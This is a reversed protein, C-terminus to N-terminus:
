DPFKYIFISTGARGVPKDSEKLWPYNEEPKREFGPALKAKAQQLFTGSLAFWGKPQGREPHWWEAKDKLYYSPSGGGFYYIQIKDINNKEVFKKLFKLDQGWDFNSDVVYKYGGHPGGAFENFYSLFHPSTFLAELLFWLMLIAILSPKLILSADQKIIAFLKMLFGNASVALPQFWNKIQSIALIYIFPITPLIHRLGINLPSKISYAWYFIVFFLLASLEFKKGYNTEHERDRTEQRKNRTEQKKDRTEVISSAKKFLRAACLIIALLILILSPIPEKLLFVVPFYYWWGASSVEGLFYAISGRSARQVVMLVGSLYQAFPRLIENRTMLINIEALCRIQRQLGVWSSCTKMESDPGGAFSNLIFVTDSTQKEAPYNQVHHLYPVYIVALGVIFIFIFGTIYNALSFNKESEVAYKKQRVPWYKKLLFVALIIIYYPILLVTSFKLLQALGFAIGAFIVNKRSPEKLFKIFYYIGLAFGLTAAIDTAVYHGHALVTPNLIFLFFVLFGWKAGLLEKAWKFIFLGLLLTLIIPLFRAWFIIKDADNGSEYLFKSGVTWQGNVFEQFDPSDKPFNLDMFLLPIASLDKLLPPHEPNLRADALKMYSYGAPIHALEDMIASEKKSSYLMLALALIAIIAVGANIANKFINKNLFNVFM